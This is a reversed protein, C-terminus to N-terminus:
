EQLGHSFGAPEESPYAAPRYGKGHCMQRSMVARLKQEQRPRHVVVDARVVRDAEDLGKHALQIERGGAERTNHRLCGSPRAVVGGIQQLEVDVAIEVPHARAPAQYGLRVAVDLHDPQESPQLRVELGNGSEPTVVTGGEPRHKPGEHEETPLEVQEATLQQSDVAGADLRDVVLIAVEGPRRQSGKNLLGVLLQGATKLGQIGAVSVLVPGPNAITRTMSVRPQGLLDRGDPALTFAV